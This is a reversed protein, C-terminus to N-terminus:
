LFFPTISAPFNLQLVERKGTVGDDLQWVQSCELVGDALVLKTFAATGGGVGHYYSKAAVLVVGHPPQLVQRAALVLTM